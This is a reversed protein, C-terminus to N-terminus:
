RNSGTVVWWKSCEPLKALVDFPKKLDYVLKSGSIELNTFLFSMLRRKQDIDSSRFLESARNLLAILGTISNHFNNDGEKLAGLEIAIEDQRNKFEYVKEDYKDQTISKDIRLDLVSDLKERIKADEKILSNIRNDRYENKQKHTDKLYNQIEELLTPPFKISDFLSQVQELIVEERLSHCTECSGKKKTPRLYIYKGKKIDSSYMCGCDSCTLLGRFIFPRITSQQPKQSHTAMVAQCKYFVADDVLREYIHPYEKGKLTAVGIYFKNKLMQNITSQNIIKGKLSRLGWDKLRKTMERISYNGTSYEVFMRRVLMFRDADLVINAKDAGNKKIHSYGLPAKSVWEGNKVKYDISRKINDTMANVYSEALMVGFQLFMKQMSNSNKDIVSNEGVFHLECYGSNVLEIIRPYDTFNRMLRDIKDIILAVPSNDKKSQSVVLDLMENFQKREGKTSSEVIKYESFAEFGKQTCYINLKAIQADLSYGEEQERSSVRAFIIAKMTMVKKNSLSNM